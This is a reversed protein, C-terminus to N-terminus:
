YITITEGHFRGTVVGVAGHNNKRIIIEVHDDPIEKGFADRDGYVSPRYLFLVCKAKEEIGGSEKLDSLLPRKNERSECGRNLQALVVYSVDDQKASTAFTKMIDDVAEHRKKFPEIKVLNIYDVVVMRTKNAVKHRRVSHVIQEANMGATDDIKWNANKLSEVNKSIKFLEDKSLSKPHQLKRVPVGSLRAMIRNIYADRTDEMSFVHCGAGDKLAGIVLSMAMASKGMGPRGAVVTVIGPKIGGLQSDLEAIGTAIGNSEGGGEIISVINKFREQLGEWVGFTQDGSILDVDQISKEARSFIEVSGLGSKVDLAIQSSILSACRLRHAEVIVSAYSEINAAAIETSGGVLQSIEVSCGEKSMKEAIVLPDIPESKQNSDLIAEFATRWLPSTFKRPDLDSVLNVSLKDVFCSVVVAEEANLHNQTIM